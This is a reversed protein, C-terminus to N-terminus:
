LSELVELVRAPMDFFGGERSAREAREMRTNLPLALARQIAPLMDEGGYPENLSEGMSYESLYGAFGCQRSTVVPLGGLIAELIVTGTNEEYAPHVLVDAAHIFDVVDDRPGLFNVCDSLGADAVVSRWSAARDNGLVLLRAPTGQHRLAHLAKLARDLGKTRFASAVFLLVVDRDAVGLHRRMAARREPYDGPFARDGRIPPPLDIFRDAPLHYYQQYLQKQPPSISFIRTDSRRSFVSAEMQLRRRYRPLRKKLGADALRAALCGDAAYYFDTGPMKNFAIRADFGDRMLLGAKRAFAADRAHNSLARVPLAKVRLGAPREGEWARTFVTVEHGAELCAGAVSLMDRQLGGWPFYQFLSFALKM